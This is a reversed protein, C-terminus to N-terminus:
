KPPSFERHYLYFKKLRFYSEVESLITGIYWLMSFVLIILVGLIGVLRFLIPNLLYGMYLEGALFASFIVIKCLPEFILPKKALRIEVALQKWDETGVEFSILRGALLSLVDSGYVDDTRSAYGAPYLRGSDFDQVYLFGGNRGISYKIKGIKREV